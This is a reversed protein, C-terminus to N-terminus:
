GTLNLLANTLGILGSNFYYGNPWGLFGGSARIQALNALADYDVRSLDLLFPLDLAVLCATLLGGLVILKLARVPMLPM